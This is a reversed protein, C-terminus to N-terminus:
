LLIRKVLDWLYFGAVGFTMVVTAVTAIRVAPEIKHVRELLAEQEHHHSAGTDLSLTDDENRTLSNRYLLLVILAATFVAWTIWM